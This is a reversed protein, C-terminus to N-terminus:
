LITALRDAHTVITVQIFDVFRGMAVNSEASNKPVLTGLFAVRYYGGMWPKDIKWFTPDLQEM